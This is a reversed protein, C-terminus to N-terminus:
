PFHSPPYRGTASHWHYIRSKVNRRLVQTVAAALDSSLGRIVVGANVRHEKRCFLPLYRELFARLRGECGSVDEPTLTAEDLLAKPQPTHLISM